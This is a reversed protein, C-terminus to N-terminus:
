RDDLSTAGYKLLVFVESECRFEDHIFASSFPFSVENGVVFFIFNSGVYGHHCLPDGTKFPVVSLYVNLFRAVLTTDLINRVSATFIKFSVM